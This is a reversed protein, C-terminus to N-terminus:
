QTSRRGPAPKALGKREAEGILAKLEKEAQRALTEQQKGLVDMQKGLEDMPKAAEDMRRGLDDM